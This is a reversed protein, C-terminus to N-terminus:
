QEKEAQFRFYNDGIKVEDGGNLIARQVRMGNVYIGNASGLDMVTFQGQGSRLVRAHRRSVTNEALVIENDGDRGITLDGLTLAFTSGAVIGQLGIFAPGGTSAIELGRQVIPVSLAPLGAEEPIPEPARRPPTYVVLEEKEEVVLAAPDPIDVGMRRGLQRLPEMRTKALHYVLWCVGGALILSFLATVLRGVGGTEEPAAHATPPAPAAVPAAPSAAAGLPKFDAVSLMIPVPSADPGFTVDRVAAEGTHADLVWLRSGAAAPVLVKVSETRSINKPLNAVTGTKSQVWYSYTGTDPLTLTLPTGAIATSAALCLSFLLFLRIM